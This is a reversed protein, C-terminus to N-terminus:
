ASAGVPLWRVGVVRELVPAPQRAPALDIPRSPAPVLEGSILGDVVADRRGQEVLWRGLGYGEAACLGPPVGHAAQYAHVFRRAYPDTSVDVSECPLVATTGVLAPFGESALRSARAAASVLLPVGDAQEDLGHAIAMAGDAGGLWVVATCAGDSAAVLAEGAGGVDRGDVPPATPTRGAVCPTDGSLDGLVAAEAGASPVIRRWTPSVPNGGLGSFSFVPIGADGLVREAAPADVFPTVIAAAVSPDAALEGAVAAVADADQGATEIYSLESDSPLEGRAEAQDIALAVALASSSVLEVPDDVDSNQLVAIRLAPGSSASAPESGGCGACALAVVVVVPMM